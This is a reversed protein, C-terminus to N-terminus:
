VSLPSKVEGEVEFRVKAFGVWILTLDLPILEIYVYDIM